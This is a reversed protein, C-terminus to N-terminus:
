ALRSQLLRFLGMGMAGILTTLESSNGIFFKKNYILKQFYNLNRCRITAPHFHFLLNFVRKPSLAHLQLGNCEGRVLLVTSHIQQPAVRQLFHYIRPWTSLFM